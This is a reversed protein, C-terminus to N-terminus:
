DCTVPGCLSVTTNCRKYGTEEEIRYWEDCSIIQSIENQLWEKNGNNKQITAYLNTIFDDSLDPVYKIVINYMKENSDLLYYLSELHRIRENLYFGNSLMVFKNLLSIIFKNFGAFDLGKICDYKSKELIADMEETSLSDDGSLERFLRFHYDAREEPNLHQIAAAASSSLSTISKRM